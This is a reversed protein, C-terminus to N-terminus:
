KRNIKNKLCNPIFYYSFYIKTDGPFKGDSTRKKPLVAKFASMPAYEHPSTSGPPMQPQPPNQTPQPQPPPAQQHHGLAADVSIQAQHMRQHLLQTPSPITAMATLASLDRVQLSASTASSVSAAVASPTGSAPNSGTTSASNSASSSQQNTLFPGPFDAAIAPKFNGLSYDLPLHHQHAPPAAPHMLHQGSTAQLKAVDMEFM